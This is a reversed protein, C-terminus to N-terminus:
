IRSALKEVKELFRQRREESSFLKRDFVKIHKVKFGCYGLVAFRWILDFPRGMLWYLWNPGDCSIFVSATRGKLLGIPWPRLRPVYRYAFRPALNIDLFNKMIAPMSLWWMPHVFVVDSAEAIKAQFIDRVPDPAAMDSKEEFHMYGQKLDTKYLDIIEVSHGKSERGKRYADAIQHTFGKSSPHATIILTKM